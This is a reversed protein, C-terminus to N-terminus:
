NSKYEKMKASVVCRPTEVPQAGGGLVHLRTNVSCNFSFSNLVDYQRQALASSNFLQVWKQVAVPVERMAIIFRGGDRRNDVNIDHTHKIM